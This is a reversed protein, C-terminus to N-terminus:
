MYKLGLDLLLPYSPSVWLNPNPTIASNGHNNLLLTNHATAKKTPHILILPTRWM